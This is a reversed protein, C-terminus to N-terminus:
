SLRGRGPDSLETPPFRAKVVGPGSSDFAALGAVGQPHEASSRPAWGLPLTAFLEFLRQGPVHTSVLTLQDGDRAVERVPAFGPTGLEALHLVRRRLADEFGPAVALDRRFRLLELTVSGDAEVALSREGFGDSRFPSAGPGSPSPSATNLSM